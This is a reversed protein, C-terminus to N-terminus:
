SAKKAVKKGKGQKRPQPQQNQEDDSGVAQPKGARARKSAPSKCYKAELAALAADAREQGRGRSLLAVKWAHCGSRRHAPMNSHQAGLVDCLLGWAAPALVQSNDALSFAFELVPPMGRRLRLVGTMMLKSSACYGAAGLYGPGWRIAAVLAQEAGAQPPSTLPRLPDKPPPKKDVAKAWKTFAAHPKEGSKACHDRIAACFRHSDRAADSCIQWQFVQPLM